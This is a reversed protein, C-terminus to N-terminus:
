QFWSSFWSSKPKENLVKTIQLVSIEDRQELALIRDAAYYGAIMWAEEDIEDKQQLSFEQKSL